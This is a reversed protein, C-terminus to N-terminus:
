NRFTRVYFDRRSRFHAIAFQRLLSLEIFVKYAVM